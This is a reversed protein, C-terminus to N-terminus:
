DCNKKPLVFNRVPFTEICCRKCIMSYIFSLSLIYYQHLVLCLRWDACKIYIHKKWWCVYKTESSSFYICICINNYNYYPFQTLWLVDAEKKCHECQSLHMIAKYKFIYSCWYRTLAHYMLFINMPFMHFLHFIFRFFQLFLAM